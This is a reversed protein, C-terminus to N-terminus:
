LVHQHYRVYLLKMTNAELFLVVSKLWASKSSNWNILPEFWEADSLTNAPESPAEKLCSYFRQLCRSLNFFSKLGGQGWVSEEADWLERQQWFAGMAWAIIWNGTSCVELGRPDANWGRWINIMHLKWHLHKKGLWRESPLYVVHM